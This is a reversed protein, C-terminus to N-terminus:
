RWYVNRASVMFERITPCHEIQALEAEQLGGVPGAGVQCGSPLESEGM